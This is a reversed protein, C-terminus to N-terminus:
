EKYKGHSIKRKLPFAYYSMTKSCDIETNDQDSFKKIRKYKARMIKFKGRLCSRSLCYMEYISSYKHRDKYWSIYKSDISSALDSFSEKARM